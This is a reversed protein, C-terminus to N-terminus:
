MTCVEDIEGNNLDIYGGQYLATECLETAQLLSEPCGYDIEALTLELASEWGTRGLYHDLISLTRVDDCSANPPKPIRKM